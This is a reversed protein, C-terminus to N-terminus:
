IEGPRCTILGGIKEIDNLILAKLVYPLHLKTNTGSYWYNFDNCYDGAYDLIGAAMNKIAEERDKGTEILFSIEVLNLVVSGDEEFYENATFKYSELLPELMVDLVDDLKIKEKINANVM